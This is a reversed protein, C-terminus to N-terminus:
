FENFPVMDNASGVEVGYNNNVDICLVTEVMGHQLLSLSAGNDVMDDKTETSDRRM